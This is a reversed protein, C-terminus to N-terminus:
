HMARVVALVTRERSPEVYCIYDQDGTYGGYSNKANVSMSYARVAVRQDGLTVMGTLARRIEGVKVSDPDKFTFTARLQAVCAAKAAAVVDPAAPLDPVPAEIKDPVRVPAAVIVRQGAACPKDSYKAGCRYVAQAAVPGATLVILALALHKM